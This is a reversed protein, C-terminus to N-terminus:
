YDLIPWELRTASAKAPAKVGESGVQTGRLEVPEVESNIGALSMTDPDNNNTVVGNRAADHGEYGIVMTRPGIQASTPAKVGESGVQTGKAILSPTKADSRGTEAFMVTNSSGDHFHTSDKGILLKDHGTGADALYDTVETEVKLTDDGGFTNLEFVESSAVDLTSPKPAKVTVTEYLVESAGAKLQLADNLTTNFMGQNESQGAQLADNHLVPGDVMQASAPVAAALLGAVVGLTAVSRKLNSSFMISGREPTPQKDVPM